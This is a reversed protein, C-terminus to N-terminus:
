LAYFRLNVKSYEAHTWFAKLYIFQFKFNVHTVMRYKNGKVDFVVRTDKTTDTPIMDSQPYDQKLEAFSTWKASGALTKFNKLWLKADPYQEMYENLVGTTIIRM